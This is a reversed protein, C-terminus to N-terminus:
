DTGDSHVHHRPLIRVLAGSAVSPHIFVMGSTHTVEAGEGPDGVLRVDEARLTSVAATPDDAHLGVYYLGEGRRAIFRGVPSDTDDDQLFGLSSDEFDFFATRLTGRTSTSASEQHLLERYQAVARDIDTVAIVVSELGGFM